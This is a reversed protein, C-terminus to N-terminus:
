SADPSGRNPRSVPTAHLMKEIQLEVRRIGFEEGSRYDYGDIAGLEYRAKECWDSLAKLAELPMPTAAPSLRRSIEKLVEGPDVVLQSGGDYGVTMRAGPRGIHFAVTSINDELYEQETM